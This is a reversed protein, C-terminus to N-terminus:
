NIRFTGTPRATYFHNYKTFYGWDRPSSALISVNTLEASRFGAHTQLTTDGYTDTSSNVQVSEDNRAFLVNATRSPAIDGRIYSQERIQTIISHTVCKTNIKSAALTFSTAVAEDRGLNLLVGIRIDAEIDVSAIWADTVYGVITGKMGNPIVRYLSGAEPSEKTTDTNDILLVDGPAPAMREERTKIWFAKRENEKTNAVVLAFNPTNTNGRLPQHTDVVTAHFHDPLTHSEVLSPTPIPTFAQVTFRHPLVGEAGTPVLVFSGKEGPFYGQQDRARSQRSPLLITPSFTEIKTGDSDPTLTKLSCQALFCDFAVLEGRAPRCNEITGVGVCLSNAYDQFASHSDADTSTQNDKHPIAGTALAM